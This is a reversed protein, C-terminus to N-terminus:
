SPDRYYSGQLIATSYYTRRSNYPAVGAEITAEVRVARSDIFTAPALETFVLNTVRAEGSTLDSLTLDANVLVIKQSQLKIARDVFSVTNPNFDAYTTLVIESPSVLSASKALRIERTIREIATQAASSTKRDGHVRALIRSMQVIGITVITVLVVMIAIYVILEMLAVGRSYKIHATRM